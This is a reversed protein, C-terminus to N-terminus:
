RAIAWVGLSLPVLSDRRRSTNLPIPRRRVIPLDRAGSRTQTLKSVALSLKRPVHTTQDSKVLLSRIERSGLLRSGSHDVARRNGRYTNLMRPRMNDNWPLSAPISCSLVLTLVRGAALSGTTRGSRNMETARAASIAPRIVVRDPAPNAVAIQTRGLGPAVVPDELGIQQGHEALEVAVLLRRAGAARKM